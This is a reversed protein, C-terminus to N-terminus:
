PLQVFRLPGRAHLAGYGVGLTAVSELHKSLGFDILQPTNLLTDILNQTSLTSGGIFLKLSPLAPPPASLAALARACVCGRACAIACLLVHSSRICM